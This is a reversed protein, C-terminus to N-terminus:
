PNPTATMDSSPPLTPMPSEGYAQWASLSILILEALSLRGRLRYGLPRTTPPHFPSATSASFSSASARRPTTFGLSSNLPSTHRRRHQAFRYAPLHSLPWGIPRLTTFFRRSLHDARRTTWRAPRAWSFSRPRPASRPQYTRTTTTACLPECCKASLTTKHPGISAAASYHSSPFCSEFSM